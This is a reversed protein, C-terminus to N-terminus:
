RPPVPRRKICTRLFREDLEKQEDCVQSLLNTHRQGPLPCWVLRKGRAKLAHIARVYDTDGAVLMAVDFRDECAGLVMDVALNVDTEKEVFYRNGEEDRRPEHRGLVLDIRRSRRLEDFFQQQRRYAPSTQNPLPSTYYRLKVFHFGRSLRTALLNLDVQFHFSERILALNWNSGDVFIELRHARQVPAPAAADNM